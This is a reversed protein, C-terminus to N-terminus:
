PWCMDVWWDLCGTYVIWTLWLFSIGVDPVLSIRVTNGANESWFVQTFTDLGSKGRLV